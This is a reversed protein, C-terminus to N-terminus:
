SGYKDEPECPDVERRLDLAGIDPEKVLLLVGARNRNFIRRVLLPRVVHGARGDDCNRGCPNFCRKLYVCIFGVQGLSYHALLLFDIACQSFLHPNLAHTCFKLGLARNHPALVFHIDKIKVTTM